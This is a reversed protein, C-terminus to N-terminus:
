FAANQLVTQWRSGPCTKRVSLAFRLFMVNLLDGDVPHGLSDWGHGLPTGVDNAVRLSNRVCANIAGCDVYKRWKLFVKRWVHTVPLIEGNEGAEAIL